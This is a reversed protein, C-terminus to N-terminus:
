SEEESDDFQSGFTRDRPLERECEALPRNCHLCIGNLRKISARAADETRHREVIQRKHSDWVAFRPTTGATVTIRFRNLM